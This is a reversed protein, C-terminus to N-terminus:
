LDLQERLAKLKDKQQETSLPAAAQKEIAKAVPPHLVEGKRVREKLLEYNREFVPFTQAETQGQLFFWDTAKGAYYVIPHSWNVETRPEQSMCAEIYAAKVDPLGQTAAQDCYERLNHLTPLFTNACIAKRGALAIHQPQYEALLRLWLQKAMSLSQHDPFAKHFQNHYALELETFLHSIAEVHAETPKATATDATAAQSSRASQLAQEVPIDGAHQIHKAM